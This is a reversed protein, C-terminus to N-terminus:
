RTYGPLCSVISVKACWLNCYKSNLQQEHTCALFVESEPSRCGVEFGESVTMTPSETSSSFHRDKFLAPTNTAVTYSSVLKLNLYSKIFISPSLGIAIILNTGRLVSDRAGGNPSTFIHTQETDVEDEDSDESDEFCHRQSVSSADLSIGFDM